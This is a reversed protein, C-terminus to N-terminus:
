PCKRFRAVLARPMGNIKRHNWFLAAETLKETREAKLMNKTNNNYTSLYSFVQEAEEGSTLGSGEQWRGGYLILVILLRRAARAAM